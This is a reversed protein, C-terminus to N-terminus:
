KLFRRETILIYSNITSYNIVSIKECVGSVGIKSENM